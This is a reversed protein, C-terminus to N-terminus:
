RTASECVRLLHLYAGGQSRLLFGGRSHLRVLDSTVLAHPSSGLWRRLLFAIRRSLIYTCLKQGLLLKLLLGSSVSMSFPWFFFSAPFTGCDGATGVVPGPFALAYAGGGVERLWSRWLLLM